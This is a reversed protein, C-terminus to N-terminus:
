GNVIEGGNVHLMQGTIYSADDSALFVYAPALEGPQGARKMPTDAGFQAVKQADFTSPILPTWIPGPAVGNVRIGKGQKQLSESLSRTFTVIAGKTASYD